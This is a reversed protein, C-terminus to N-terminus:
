AGGRSVTSGSNNRYQIGKVYPRANDTLLSALRGYEVPPLKM